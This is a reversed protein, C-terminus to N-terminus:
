SAFLRVEWTAHNEAHIDALPATHAPLDAPPLAADAVAARAVADCAGALRALLAQTGYPDLGLLRVAASAPGTLVGYAGILAADAPSLGAAAATLGLAVPHHYGDPHAPVRNLLPAPWTARGARLLARGQRRSARRLAPSATRADLEEDLLTVTAAPEPEDAAVRRTAAAFAAAVRGATALRGRLFTELEPLGNVQGAAVAAELGASHAHGGSPFRGDALLLATTDM